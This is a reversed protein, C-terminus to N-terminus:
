AAVLEYGLQKAKTRLNCVTRQRYREEYADLSQPQYPQRTKLMAFVIRALKHATAVNAVAPGFRARMRRYFAGLASKSNALSQAAQRFARNARSKVPKAHSRLPKAGSIETDPALGLWACFQKSTPWKRMDTGIESIIIQVTLTNLGDVETLDVGLMRYLALRLDFDPASRSQRGGRKPPPPPHQEPDVAPQIAAYLKEIERDCDAMQASYFDYAALAQGLAFLQEPKYNGELSKIIEGESKKCAPDRFQALYRPQHHGAVIARMIRMGTAGTIDSLVNTLKVNMLHLAKQMHQIHKARSQVLNERHRVLARIARIAEDPHFSGRLLGYSHLQQIRQCDLVDTKPSGTQRVHRPNVLYVSFGAEDLIEYVPVWYVSTAEMAVTTIGCEQLWAALAHLNVTFTGFCRVSEASRGAPVAAYIEEAGIDLGAANLEVPRLEEVTGAKVKRKGKGDQAKSM